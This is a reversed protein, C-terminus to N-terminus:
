AAATRGQEHLATGCFIPNVLGAITARRIAKKLEVATVEHQEVYSILM